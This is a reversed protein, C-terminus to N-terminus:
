TVGFYRRLADRFPQFNNVLLFFVTMFVKEADWSTIIIYVFLCNEFQTRPPVSNSTFNLSGRTIMKKGHHTYRLLSLSKKFITLTGGWYGRQNSGPKYKLQWLQVFFNVSLSIKEDTRENYIYIYFRLLTIAYYRFNIIISFVM